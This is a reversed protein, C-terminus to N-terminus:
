GLVQGRGQPSNYEGPDVRRRRSAGRALLSARARVKETQPVKRDIVQECSVGENIVRDENRPKLYGPTSPRHNSVLYVSYRLSLFSSRTPPVTALLAGSKSLRRAVPRLVGEGVGEEGVEQAVEEGGGGAEGGEGEGAEAVGGHEWRGHEELHVVNGGGGSLFSSLQRFPRWCLAQSQLECCKPVPGAALRWSGAALQWGREMAGARHSAM